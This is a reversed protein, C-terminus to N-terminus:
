MCVFLSIKALVGSRTIISLFFLVQRITSKAMWASWPTSILSLVFLSFYKCRTLYSFFSHCTITVTIGIILTASPVTWLLKFSPPPPLNSFPPYISVRRVVANNLYTLISLLFRSIKPSKSDSLSWYFVILKRPHSSSALLIINDYVCFYSLWM